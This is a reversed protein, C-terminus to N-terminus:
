QKYELIKDFSSIDGDFEIVKFNYEKLIEILYKQLFDFREFHKITIKDKLTFRPHGLHPIDDYIRQFAEEPKSKMVIIKNMNLNKSLTIRILINLVRIMSNKSINLSPLMHIEGEWLVKRNSNSMVCDLRALYCDCFSRYEAISIKDKRVISRIFSPLLIFLLRITFYLNLPSTFIKINRISLIPRFFDANHFYKDKNAILLKHITSTKGSGWLGIWEIWEINSKNNKTNPISIPLLSLKHKSKLRILLTIAYLIECLFFAAICGAIGYIPVFILVLSAFFIGLGWQIKALFEQDGLIYYMPNLIGLAGKIFFVCLAGYFINIYEIYRENVLYLIQEAFYWAFCTMFITTAICLQTSKKIIEQAKDINNSQILNSIEGGWVYYSVTSFFM